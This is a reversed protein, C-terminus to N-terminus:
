KGGEMKGLREGGKKRRKRVNEKENKREKKKKRRGEITWFPPPLIDHDYQVMQQAKSM